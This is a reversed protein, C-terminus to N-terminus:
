KGTVELGYGKKEEEDLLLPTEDSWVIRNEVVTARMFAANNEPMIRQQFMWNAIYRKVISSCIPACSTQILYFGATDSLLELMFGEAVQACIYNDTVSTVRSKGGYINEVSDTMGQRAYEMMLLRQKMDVYPCLSDPMSVFLQRVPLQACSFISLTLSLLIYFFRRVM